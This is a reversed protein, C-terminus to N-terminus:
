QVHREVGSTNLVGQILPDLVCQDGRKSDFVQEVGFQMEIFGRVFGTEDTIKAVKDPSNVGPVYLHEGNPEANENTDGMPRRLDKHERVPTISIYTQGVDLLRGTVLIAKELVQPNGELDRITRSYKAVMRGVVVGAIGEPGRFQRLWHILKEENAANGLTCVEDRKLIAVFPHQWVASQDQLYVRRLDDRVENVVKELNPM